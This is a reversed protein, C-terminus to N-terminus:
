LGPRLFPVTYAGESNTVATAVENTDQNQVAIPAGPVAAHSPDVVQGKVTARFEQASVTCIPTCILLAAILRRRVSSRIM